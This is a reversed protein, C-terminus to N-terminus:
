IVKNGPKTTKIESHKEEKQKCENLSIIEDLIKPSDDNKLTDLKKIKLKQQGLDMKKPIYNIDPSQSEFSSDM